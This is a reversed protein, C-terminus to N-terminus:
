SQKTQHAEFEARSICGGANSDIAEFSINPKREQNKGNRGKGQGKGQGESRMQNKHKSHAM